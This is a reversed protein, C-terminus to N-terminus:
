PYSSSRRTESPRERSTQELASLLAGNSRWNVGLTSRQTGAKHAAELYTHVNAGRFAYIAQKPDAVMVLTSDDGPLGFLTSFIAWQVPDTDQFEDILVIQFRRRLAAAAAPSKDLADRLETLLDDFSVTGAARRRRHVEEVARDVLSRLRAVAPTVETDDADPLLRIGPNGLVKAATDSLDKLAPLPTVTESHALSEAALVDACVARLLEATDDLLTADLDGSAASGLTSLFQQAFGHITTITASDFDVVARELRGLRREPDTRAVFALLEDDPAHKARLAEVAEILRSRVRDASSPRPPALSPSSSCGTSRSTRRPWTDCCSGQSRTPREPGPARRSRSAPGHPLTGCLDFLGHWSM